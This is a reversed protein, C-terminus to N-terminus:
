TSDGSGSDAVWYLFVDDQRVCGSARLRRLASDVTRMALGLGRRIGTFSQPQALILYLYILKESPARLM